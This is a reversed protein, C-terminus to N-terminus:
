ITQGIAFYFLFLTTLCFPVNHGELTVPIGKFRRKDLSAGSFIVKFINKQRVCCSIQSPKILVSVDKGRTGKEVEIEIVVETGTQYWKAWPTKAAIIGSKEDFHDAM